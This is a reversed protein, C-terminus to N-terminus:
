RARAAWPPVTTVMSPWTTVAMVGSRGPTKPRTAPRESQMTDLDEAFECRGIAHSDVADTNTAAVAQSVPRLHDDGVDLPRQTRALRSTAEDLSVDMTRGVDARSTSGAITTSLSM